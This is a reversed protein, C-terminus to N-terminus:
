LKNETQQALGHAATQRQQTIMGPSGTAVHLLGLQSAGPGDRRGGDTLAPRPQCRPGPRSMGQLVSVNRHSRGDAPGMGKGGSAGSSRGRRMILALHKPTETHWGTASDSLMIDRLPRGRPEHPFHTHSQAKKAFFFHRKAPSKKERSLCLPFSNCDLPQECDQVCRM